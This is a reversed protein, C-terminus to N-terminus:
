REFRSESGFHKELWEQFGTWIADDSYSMCFRDPVDAIWQALKKEGLYNIMKFDKLFPSPEQIFNGYVSRSGIGLRSKSAATWWDGLKGCYIDRRYRIPCHLEYSLAPLNKAVLADHTDQLVEKLVKQQQIAVWELLPGRQFYPVTRADFPKLFLYDDNCFLVEDTLDFNEFAWQTKLAIRAEKCFPLEPAQLFVVDGSLFHPAEDGVIVVRRIGRAYKELSRFFYRLECNRLQSGRGLPVVVDLM